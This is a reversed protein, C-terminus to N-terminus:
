PGKTSTTSTVTKATTSLPAINNFRDMASHWADKVPQDPKARYEDEFLVGFLADHVPDRQEQQRLSLIQEVETNDRQPASVHTLDSGPFTAPRHGSGKRQRLRSALWGAAGLGLSLPLAFEPAALTVVTGALWTGVRLWKSGTAAAPIETSIDPVPIRPTGVPEPDPPISEGQPPITERVQEISERLQDAMSRLQDATATQTEQLQGTIVERSQEVQGQVDTIKSRVDAVDAQLGTVADTTQQQTAQLERTQSALQDVRDRATQDIQPIYRPTPAADGADSVRPVSPPAPGAKPNPATVRPPPDPRVSTRVRPWEVYLDRMLKALATDVATADTRTTFGESMAIRQHGRVAVYSPIGSVGMAIAEARQNPKDWDLERVEFADQLADRVDRRDCYVRDFHRCPPCWDAHVIYLTPKRAPTAQGAIVPLCLLLLLLWRRRM